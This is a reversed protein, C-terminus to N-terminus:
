PQLSACCGTNAYIQLIQPHQSNHFIGFRFDAHGIYKDGTFLTQNCMASVGGASAWILPADTKIPPQFIIDRVISTTTIRVLSAEILEISGDINQVVNVHIGVAENARITDISLGHTWYWDDPWKIKFGDVRATFVMDLSHMRQYAPPSDPLTFQIEDIDEELIVYIYNYMTFDVRLVNNQSDVAVRPSYWREYTLWNNFVMNLLFNGHISTPVNSAFIKREHWDHTHGFWILFANNRAFYPEIIRPDHPAKTDVIVQVQGTGTKYAYLNAGTNNSLFNSQSCDWQMEIPWPIQNTTQDYRNFTAEQGPKGFVITEGSVVGGGGGPDVITRLEIDVGPTQSPVVGVTQQGTGRFGTM